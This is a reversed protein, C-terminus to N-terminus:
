NMIILQPAKEKKSLNVLIKIGSIVTVVIRENKQILRKLSKLM